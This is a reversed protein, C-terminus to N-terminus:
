QEDITLQEVYGITHNNCWNGEEFASFCTEEDSDIIWGADNVYPLEDDRWEKLAAVAKEKTSFAFSYIEEDQYKYVLQRIFLWVQKKEM